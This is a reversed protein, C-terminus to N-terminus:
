SEKTAKAYVPRRADNHPARARSSIILSQSASAASVCCLMKKHVRGCNLQIRNINIYISTVITQLRLLNNDHYSVTPLKFYFIYITYHSRTLRICDMSEKIYKTKISHKVTSSYSFIIINFHSFLTWKIQM